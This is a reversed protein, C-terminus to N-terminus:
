PIIALYIGVAVFFFFHHAYLGLLGDPRLKDRNRYCSTVLLIKIGGQVPHWDMVPNGGAIFEGTGMQLVQTSLPLSHTLHRAWSWLM